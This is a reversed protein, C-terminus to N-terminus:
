PLLDKCIDWRVERLASDADVMCVTFAHETKLTLRDEHIECATAMAAMAVLGGVIWRVLMRAMVYETETSM